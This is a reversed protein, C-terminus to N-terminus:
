AADTMRRRHLWLLLGIVAASLMGLAGTAV